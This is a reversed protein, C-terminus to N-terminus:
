DKKTTKRKRAPKKTTAECAVKHGAKQYEAVRDEAIWMESGTLRNIFKVM